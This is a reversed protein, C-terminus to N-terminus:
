RGSADTIPRSNSLVIQRNTAWLFLLRIIMERHRKLQRTRLDSLNWTRVPRSLHDKIFSLIEAQAKRDRGCQRLLFGGFSVLTLCNIVDTHNHVMSWDFDPYHRVGLSLGRSAMLSRRVQKQALEGLSSGIDAM